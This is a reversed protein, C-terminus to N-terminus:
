KRDSAIRGFSGFERGEDTLARPQKMPLWLSSQCAARTVKSAKKLSKSPGFPTLRGPANHNTEACAQSVSSPSSLLRVEPPRPEIGRIDGGLHQGRDALVLEITRRPPGLQPFAEVHDQRRSIAPLGAGHTQFVYVIRYSPWSWIASDAQRDPRAIM